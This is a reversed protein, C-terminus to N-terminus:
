PKELRLLTLGTGDPEVGVIKYATGSITITQGHTASPVDATRTVFAPQSGQVMGDLAEAYAADFIGNITSGTGSYVASTGFDDTSFFATLDETFPM